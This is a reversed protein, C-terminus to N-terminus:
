IHDDRKGTLEKLLSSVEFVQFSFYFFLFSLAFTIETSRNRDIMIYIFIALLNLLLRIATSGMYTRIFKQPSKKDAQILLLHVFFTSVAFYILIYIVYVLHLNEPLFHNWLFSILFLLFSFLIIKKIM